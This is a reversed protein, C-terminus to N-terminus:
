KIMLGVLGPSLFTTPEWFAMVLTSGYQSLLFSGLLLFHDMRVHIHYILFLVILGLYPM